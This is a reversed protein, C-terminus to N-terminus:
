WDSAHEDHVNDPMDFAIGSDEYMAVSVLNTFSEFRHVGQRGLFKQKFRAAQAKTRLSLLVGKTSMKPFKLGDALEAGVLSRSLRYVFKAFAKREQPESKGVLLPGSNVISNTMAVAEFEPDPECLRGAKRIRLAEDPDRPCVEDPIGMLWGSYRWVEVFGEREEETYQVGYKQAHELLRASFVSLAFAMHASSLPIGWEQENWEDSQQLLYRAKAHILRTRVSMKWGDSRVELGGPMYMEIIHRINQKLRRIGNERLRGTIFFSKSIHTSLNEILSAALVGTLLSASERHFLRIGPEFKKRDLWDPQGDLNGIFERLLPPAQKVVDKDDNNLYRTLIGNANGNGEQIDEAIVADAAADGVRTLRLYLSAYSSDQEMAGASKARYAEPLDLM